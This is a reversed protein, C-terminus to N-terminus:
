LPKDPFTPRTMPATYTVTLPRLYSTHVRVRELDRLTELEPSIGGHVCFFRKDVLATIPLAQFSKICADYVEISYKHLGPPSLRIDVRVILVRTLHVLM